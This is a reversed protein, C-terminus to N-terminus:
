RQVRFASIAAEFVDVRFVARRQRCISQSRQSVSSYPVRLSCGDSVHFSSRAKFYCAPFRLCPRLLSRLASHYPKRPEQFNYRAPLLKGFCHGLLVYAFPSAPCKNYHPRGKIYIPLSNLAKEVCIVVFM